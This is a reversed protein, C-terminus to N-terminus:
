RGSRILNTKGEFINTLATGKKKRDVKTVEQKINMDGPVPRRRTMCETM